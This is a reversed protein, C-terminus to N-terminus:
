VGSKRTPFNIRDLIQDIRKQSMKQIGHSICLLGPECGCDYRSKKELPKQASIEPVPPVIKEPDVAGRKRARYDRMYDARSKETPM